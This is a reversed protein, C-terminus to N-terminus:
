NNCEYIAKYQKLVADMMKFVDKFKINSKEIQATFLRNKCKKCKYEHEGGNILYLIENCDPCTKETSM